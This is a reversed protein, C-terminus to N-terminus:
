IGMGGRGLEELLEFDGFTRPLPAAPTEVRVPGNGHLTPATKSPRTFENAFMVAAWLERLEDALDPHDIAIQEVNPQRGQQVAATMNALLDALREDRVPDSPITAM